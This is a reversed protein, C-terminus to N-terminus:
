VHMSPSQGDNTLTVAAGVAAADSPVRDESLEPPGGLEQLGVARFPQATVQERRHGVKTSDRAVHSKVPVGVVVGAAREVEAELTGFVGAVVM